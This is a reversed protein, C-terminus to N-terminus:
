SQSQCKLRKWKSIADELEQECGYKVALDRLIKEERALLPHFQPGKKIQKINRLLYSYEGRSIAEELATGELNYKEQIAKAKGILHINENEIMNLYYGFRRLDSEKIAEKIKQELEARDLNFQGILEEILRTYVEVDESKERIQRLLISIKKDVGKKIAISLQEEGFGQQRVVRQAPSISAIDGDEIKDLCRLLLEVDAIFKEIM